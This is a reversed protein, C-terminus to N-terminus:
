FYILVYYLQILVINSFTINYNTLIYWISPIITVKFFIYDIIKFPLECIGMKPIRIPEGKNLYVCILSVGQGQVCIFLLQSYITEWFSSGVSLVISRCSYITKCKSDCNTKNLCLILFFSFVHFAYKNCQLLISFLFQM